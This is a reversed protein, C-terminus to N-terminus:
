DVVLGEARFSGIVVDVHDGLKEFRGKNWFAMWYVKGAEPAATQPLRGVKELSSVVLKVGRQPDIM